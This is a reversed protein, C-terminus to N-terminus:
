TTETPQEDVAQARLAAYREATLKVAVRPSWNDYRDKTLTRYHDQWEQTAMCEPLFLHWLDDLREGYAHRQAALDVTPLVLQDHAAQVQRHADDDWLQM